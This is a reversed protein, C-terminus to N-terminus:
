KGRVIHYPSRKARPLHLNLSDTTRIQLVFAADNCSYNDPRQSCQSVRLTWSCTSGHAPSSVILKELLCHCSLARHVSGCGRCLPCLQTLKLGGPLYDDHLDPGVVNRVEMQNTSRVFVTSGRGEHPTCWWHCLANRWWTVNSIEVAAHSPFRWELSWTLRVTSPAHRLVQMDCVRQKSVLPARATWSVEQNMVTNVSTRKM